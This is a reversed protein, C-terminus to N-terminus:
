LEFSVLKKHFSLYSIFSSLNFFICKSSMKVMSFITEYNELELVSNLTATNESRNKIKKKQHAPYTIM